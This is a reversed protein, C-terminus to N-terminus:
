SVNKDVLDTRQHAQDTDQEYDKDTVLTYGVGAVTLIFIPHGPDPEIKQRLHRIHTKIFRTDGDGDYGWVHTVIQEATCVTNAQMALLHLLKRETPSLRIVKGQITAENRHIDVSIPGATVVSPLYTQLTSRLRRSVAHIRALLQSPYFPKRLYDDAGAELCRVEYTIDKETTVVLLLTDHQRRLECCVPLIDLDKYVPDVIVLDPKHELWVVRAHEICSTQRVHYGLMKLWGTLMEAMERDHDIVLLKM